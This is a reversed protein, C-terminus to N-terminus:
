KKMKCCCRLTKILCRTHVKGKNWKYWFLCRVLYKVTTKSSLMFDAYGLNDVYKVSLIKAINQALGSSMLWVTDPPFQPFGISVHQAILIVFIM